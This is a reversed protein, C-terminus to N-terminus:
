VHIVQELLPQLTSWSQALSGFTSVTEKIGRFVSKVTGKSREGFEAQAQAALYAVQEAIEDKTQPDLDSDWLLQTFSRLSEALERNNRTEFATISADLHQFQRITGTNIM